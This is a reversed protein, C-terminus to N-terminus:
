YLPSNLYMIVSNKLNESGGEWEQVNERHKSWPKYLIKRGHWVSGEGVGLCYHIQVAGLVTLM